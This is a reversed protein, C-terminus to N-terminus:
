YVWIKGIVEDQLDLHHQLQLCEHLVAEADLYTQQARSDAARGLVDQIGSRSKTRTQRGSSCARSSASSGCSAPVDPM